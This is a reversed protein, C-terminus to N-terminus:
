LNADPKQGDHALWKCDELKLKSFVAKFSSEEPSAIYIGFHVEEKLDFMHCIRMVHYILGDYSYEICFDDGRRSLRWWLTKISADIEVSSWDSYGKNTSVSGLRQFSENEYECSAKLWCEDNQYAILGAQDFRHKTDFEVKFSFSFFLEKTSAQLMPANDNRFHYYTRQWLDTHPSSIMEIRNSTIKFRLPKRVWKMTSVISLCDEKFM